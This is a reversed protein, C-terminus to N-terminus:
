NGRPIEALRTAGDRSLLLTVAAAGDAQAQALAAALDASTGLTRGYAELVLDGPAIGAREARGGPEVRCLVVGPADAALRLAYRLEFTLDRAALGAEAEYVHPANEYDPPSWELAIEARRSEGPRAGDVWSLEVRPGAGIRTLLATLGNRRTGPGADPEWDGASARPAPPPSPLRDPDLGYVCEREVDRISLLVAGPGIGLREAPSGPYVDTVLLGEDGARTPITAGLLRALAPGLPQWEVGLWVRRVADEPSLPRVRTDLPPGPLLGLEEFSVVRPVFAQDLDGPLEDGGAGRPVTGCVIAGAIAEGRFDGILTGAPLPRDPVLGNPGEVLRFHVCGTAGELAPDAAGTYGPPAPLLAL